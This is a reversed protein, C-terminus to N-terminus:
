IQIIRMGQFTDKNELFAEVIPTHSHTHKKVSNDEMKSAMLTAMALAGM